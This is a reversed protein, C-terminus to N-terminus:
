GHFDVFACKEYSHSHFCILDGKFILFAQYVRRYSSCHVYNLVNTGTVCVSNLVARILIMVKGHKERKQQELLQMRLSLSTSLYYSSLLTSEIFVLRHQTATLCVVYQFSTCLFYLYM